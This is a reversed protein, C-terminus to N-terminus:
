FATGCGNWAGKAERRRKGRKPRWPGEVGDVGHGGGIGGDEGGLALLVEVLEDVLPEPALDGGLERVQGGGVDRLQERVVALIREGAEEFAEGRLDLGVDEGLQGGVEGGSEGGRHGGGVGGVDDVLHGGVVGGVDEALEVVLLDGGLDDLPHVVLVRVVDRAQHGVRLVGGAADHRRVEDREVRVLRDVVREVGDGAALVVLVDVLDVDDVRVVLEEARDRDPVQQALFVTGRLEAVDHVRADHGDAGVLVLLGDGFLHGLVVEGHYRDDVVAPVEEAADRVVVRSSSMRLRAPVVSSSSPLTEAQREQQYRRGHSKM